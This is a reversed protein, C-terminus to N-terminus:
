VLLITPLTLHTYSVAFLSSDPEAMNKKSKAPPTAVINLLFTLYDKMSVSKRIAEIATVIEDATEPTVGATCITSKSCIASLGKLIENSPQGFMVILALFQRQIFLPYLEFTSRKSKGMGKRNAIVLQGMCDQISQFTEVDISNSRAMCHFLGLIESSEFCFDSGWSNLYFPLGRLINTLTDKM